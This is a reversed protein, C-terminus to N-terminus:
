FGSSDVNVGPSHMCSNICQLCVLFGTCHPDINFDLPLDLLFFFNLEIQRYIKESHQINFDSCKSAAFVSIPKHWNFFKTSPRELDICRHLCSILITQHCLKYLKMKLRFFDLDIEPIKPHTNVISKKLTLGRGM